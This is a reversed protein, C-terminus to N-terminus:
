KKAGKKVQMSLKSNMGVKGGYGNPQSQPMETRGRLVKGKAMMKKFRKRKIGEKFDNWWVSFSFPAMTEIVRDVYIKEIQKKEPQPNNIGRM